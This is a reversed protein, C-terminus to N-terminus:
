RQLCAGTPYVYVARLWSLIDRVFPYVGTASAVVPRFVGFLKQGEWYCRDSLSLLQMNLFGSLNNAVFFVMNASCPSSVSSLSLPFRWPLPSSVMRPLHWLLRSRGFIRLLLCSRPMIQWLRWPLIISGHSGYHGSRSSSSDPLAHIEILVALLYRQLLLCVQFICYVDNQKNKLFPSFANGLGHTSPQCGCRRVSLWCRRQLSLLEIGYQCRLQRYECWFIAELLIPPQTYPLDEGRWRPDKLDWHCLMEVSIDHNSGHFNNGTKPASTSAPILVSARCVREVSRQIWFDLIATDLSNGFTGPTLTTTRSKEHYKDKSIILRNQSICRYRVRCQLLLTLTNRIMEYSLSYCSIFPSRRINICM